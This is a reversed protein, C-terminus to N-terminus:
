KSKKFIAYISKDFGILVTTSDLEELISKM